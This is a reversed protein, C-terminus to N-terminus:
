AGVETLKPLGKIEIRWGEDDSLHLHLINFKYRVMADIYQKVEQKTFFHRAVDFMLGRWGLRPYDTVQVCPITWKIGKIEEKSEIEKPLLQILTQVGYFLGASKNATIVVQKLGVTLRYGENGLIPDNKDNIVLKFTATAAPTHVVSVFHGTPKSLREQLFAVTQKLELSKNAQIVINAPLVFYGAQKTLSVPEPIIAIEPQAAPLGAEFTSLTEISSEATQAFSHLTFLSFVIALIRKM